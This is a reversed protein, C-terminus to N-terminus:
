PKKAVFLEVTATDPIAYSASIGPQHAIDFQTFADLLIKAADPATPDRVLVTVGMAPQDLVNVTTEPGNADWGAAKLIDVLQNAYTYAEVDSPPCSVVVRYSGSQRLYDALKVATAADIARGTAGTKLAAIQDNIGAVKASLSALADDLTDFSAAPSDGSAPPLSKSLTDWQSWLGHLAATESAVRDAAADHGAQQEWRLLAVAGVGCLLVVFVWAGKAWYRWPLLVAEVLAVAFIIATPVAPGWQTAQAIWGDLRALIDSTPFGGNWSPM